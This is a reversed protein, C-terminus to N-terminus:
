IGKLSQYYWHHLFGLPAERMQWMWLMRGSRGNGDTFPHLKEYALHVAYPSHEPSNAAVIISEVRYLIEPGGRPPYYSGVRVDLGDQNRLEADPQYVKVFDVMDKTSVIPLAMFRHYEAVEAKTPTRTIGEIKNSERVFEIARLGPRAAAIIDTDNFKM